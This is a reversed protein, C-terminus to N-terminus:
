KSQLTKYLKSYSKEEKTDIIRQANKLEDPTLSPRKMDFLLVLDEVVVTEKMRGFASDVTTDGDKIAQGIGILIVLDDATIHDIAAKGIAALIEKETVSYTDKLADIVQKRKAILKTGDSVDGTIVAKAAKYAKDTVSKPIVSLIANRLAISNAANGTVTIMDDNYRGRKGM